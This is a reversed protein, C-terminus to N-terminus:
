WRPPPGSCAGRLPAMSRRGVWRRDVSSPRSRAERCREPCGWGPGAPGPWPSERHALQAQEEQEPAFPGLRHTPEGLHEVQARRRRAAEDGPDLAVPQDDAAVTGVVPPDHVALQGLRRGRGRLLQRAIRISVTRSASDASPAVSSASSWRRSRRMRSWWSSGPHDCEELGVQAGYRARGRGRRRGARRGPARWRQVEGREVAVDDVVAHGLAVGVVDELGAAQHEADRGDHHDGRDDGDVPARLGAHRKPRSTRPAIKRLTSLKECASSLWKPVGDSIVRLVLSTWCTWITTSIPRLMIIM